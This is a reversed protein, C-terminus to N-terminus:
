KKINRENFLNIYELNIEFGIYQRNLIKAMICTTGSGSFPDLIIDRENSFLKIIREMLKIPLENSERNKNKIHRIRHIDDWVDSLVIVKENNIEKLKKYKGGYDKITNNCKRCRAVPIYQKNFTKVKGKSFWLIPYHKPYLRSPTPISGSESWCIWNQFIMGQEDLYNAIKFAWKPITHYIISGNNKLVRISEKLIKYQWDLYEQKKLNDNIKSGYNKNLNFPPDFFIM